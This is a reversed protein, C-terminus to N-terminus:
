AKRASFFTYDPRAKTGGAFRDCFGEAKGAWLCAIYFEKWVGPRKMTRVGEFGAQALLDLWRDLTASSGLSLAPGQDDHFVVDSFFLSGGPKLLRYAEKLAAPTDGCVSLSCESLVGDFAEPPFSTSRMDGAMVDPSQPVLDIGVLDFGEKALAAMTVGPGAGLDLIRAPPRLDAFALLDLTGQVGEPHRPIM